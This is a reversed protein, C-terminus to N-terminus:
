HKHYNHLWDEIVLAVGREGVMISPANTNGRPVVPMISADIVRLGSVGYVRLRPDVVATSDYDPGMKCTGVPHFPTSTYSMALCKIYEDTGWKLHKCGELPIKVFQAGRSKFAYTNELNILFRTGKIIPILDREDGFYNPQMLPKGNPDKPNLVLRGRSKPTLLMTRPIVANYFSTPFIALKEVAIPERVYEMWNTNDCQYQVDPAPLHPDTKIFSVSNVPGNGSLPGEKIKMKKYEIVHRVIEANSVETSTKNPLAVVIGNYTVHDHLNEGVHLDALVPINFHELQKRPGIGSLLLLKPSNIAGGSVIVEKTATATHEKGHRVYKVGYARKHEDFLIKVVESDTKVVLNKRKDRIPAIFANNTSVREGDESVAQAQMTGQQEKGNYDLIPLGGENFAETIMISPADIFPFRAVSQPGHIGHYKRNLREINFNNESKKFYPLVDEYSWGENGLAAWEDYDLRNGRIYAMSNISSSGGMTKGRPWDCRQGPRALCSRGNPETSYKWDINSGILATSLGPVLTVDPQEPGAELLLVKWDEIETLRSAVVCGATGAGVVIFDYERGEREERRRKRDRSDGYLKVLLNLYLYGFYSCAAIPTPTPCVDTLNLPQWLM